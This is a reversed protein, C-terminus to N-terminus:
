TRAPFSDTLIDLSCVFLFIHIGVCMPIRLPEGNFLPLVHVHLSGWPSDVATGANPVNSPLAAASALAGYIDRHTHAQVLSPLHALHGLRHM